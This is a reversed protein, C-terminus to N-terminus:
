GPKVSSSLTEYHQIGKLTEANEVQMKPLLTIDGTTELIVIDIDKIEAIGKRRAAVYLEEITIREKKMAHELIEGKYVLLTPTNNIMEKVYRYRVSLWTLGYQLFVLLAFGLVGDALAVNKNMAVTAFTSGLAITIVFDFANMKSLTRKGSIRLLFILAIYALPTIIIIRGLSEWSDFFINTM